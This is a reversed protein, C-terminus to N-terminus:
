IKILFHSDCNNMHIRGWFSLQEHIRLVHRTNYKSLKKIKYFQYSHTNFDNQNMVKWANKDESNGYM